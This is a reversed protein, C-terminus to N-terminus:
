QVAVADMDAGFEVDGSVAGRSRHFMIIERESVSASPSSSMHMHLNREAGLDDARKGGQYFWLFFLHM